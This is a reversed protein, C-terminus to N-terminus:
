FPLNSRDLVTKEITIQIVGHASLDMFSCEDLREAVSRLLAEKFAVREELKDTQNIWCKDTKITLAIYSAPFEKIM